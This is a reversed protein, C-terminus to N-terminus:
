HGRLLNAGVAKAIAEQRNMANLKRLIKSFHFNVTRPKIGLKLAIDASTQGHASLSLCHLEQATLPETSNIKNLTTRVQSSLIEGLLQEGRSATAFHNWKASEAHHGLAKHCRALVSAAAESTCRMVEAKPRRVVQQAIGIASRHDMEAEFILADGLKVTAQLYPTNVERKLAHSRAQCLRAKKVQHNVAFAEVLNDFLGWSSPSCKLNLRKFLDEAHDLAVQYRNLRCNENIINSLIGLQLGSPDKCCDLQLQWAETSAALSLEWEGLHELTVGINGLVVVRRLLDSRNKVLDHAMVLHLITPHPEERTWYCSAANNHLLFKDAYCFDIETALPRLVFELARDLNRRIVQTVALHSIAMAEGYKDGVLYFRGLAEALLVEALDVEGRYAAIRGSTLSAWGLARHSCTDRLETRMRMSESFTKDWSTSANDWVSLAAKVQPDNSSRPNIM